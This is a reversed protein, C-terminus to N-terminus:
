AKASASAFFQRVFFGLLFAAFLALGAIVFEGTTFFRPEPPTTGGNRIIPDLIPAYGDAKVRYSLEGAQTNSDLLVLTKGGDFIAWDTIQPDMGQQTPSSSGAQVWMPDTPNFTVTGTKPLTFVVLHPGSNVPFEVKPYNSPGNGLQSGHKVKWGPPNAQPNPILEVDKEKKSM